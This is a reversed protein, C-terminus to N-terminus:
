AINRLFKMEVISEYDPEALDKPVIETNKVWEGRNKLLDDMNQDLTLTFSYNDWLAEVDNPTISLKGAVISISEERNNQIFTGAKKLGILLKELTKENRYDDTIVINFPHNYMGESSFLVTNNPLNKQSNYIHPQWTFVADVDGRIIAQIMDPPNLSVANIESRKIGYKELFANMVYDGSSGPSYAVKKGKIDAPRLIGRDKRGLLNVHKESTSITAIIHLKQKQYAALVVPIDSTTAADVSSGILADLALRGSVFPEIEVDLGQENWFGKKEAVFVPASAMTVTDAGLVIRDPAGQIQNTCGAILLAALLAFYKFYKM